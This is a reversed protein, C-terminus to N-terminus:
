EFKINECSFSLMFFFLPSDKSKELLFLGLRKKLGRMCQNEERTSPRNTVVM